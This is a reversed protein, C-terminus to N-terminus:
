LLGLQSRRRRHSIRSPKTTSHSVGPEAKYAWKVRRGMSEYAIAHKARGGEMSANGWEEGGSLGMRRKEWVIADGGIVMSGGGSGYDDISETGGDSIRSGCLEAGGVVIKEGLDKGKDQV